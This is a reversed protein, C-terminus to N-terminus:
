KKSKRLEELKKLVDEVEDTFERREVFDKGGAGRTLARDLALSLLDAIALDKQQVALALAKLITDSLREYKKEPV